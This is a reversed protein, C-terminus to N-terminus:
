GTRVGRVLGASILLVAFVAMGVITWRPGGEKLEEDPSEDGRDTEVERAREDVRDEVLETAEPAPEAENDAEMAERATLEAVRTPSSSDSERQRQARDLVEAFPAALESSLRPKIAEMIPHDPRTHGSGPLGHEVVLEAFKQSLKRLTEEDTEWFGKGAAVLFIATMNAKVLANHGNELFEDLGLDLSDDFYVSKVDDWMWGQITQPNTVQWGWLYELFESGMTRAGAYDHAMLPQIWNPNLYRSRLELTLASYLNDVRPNTPDAHQVVRNNPAEGRLQEVAMSLGGLYDFGDNNDILGYLNSARGLYTNEVRSLVTRFSDHASMGEIDVGYAHGMRTVFTDALEMRDEWAGSREALRNVGAGYGGPANGFLRLTAQRGLRGDTEVDSPTKEQVTRVWGAAVENSSLPENGPDRHEGLPRLAGELAPILEPHKGKITESSGDLALLVARDLWVILNGYLDRFLGSTTFLVDRRIENGELPLRELGQVIGRSNWKPRIGLMDLGFAVMVGNDRVVESAWLVIAESGEPTTDGSRRAEGALEAGLDYAIRTPLLDGSLAHFNRGTPLVKPTRIPDNGPGPEVFGGALGNLLARMEHDPSVALKERAAPDPEEGDSMSISMKEIADETWPRGFVHLGYPMFQEQLHTLYHGVEHVLLEDSVEKYTLAEVERSEHGHESGHDEHREDHDDHEDHGSRHDHGHSHGHRLEHNIEEELNLLEITSRLQRAARLRTTSDPAGEDAQYSEVLQRLELLQDYLPTAEMPPTLHDVIVALGRRKAQIGEGVGDVIYPYVGPINGAVVMSYDEATLGVRRRPLFEYTSHRGLHVLADAEFENKLWLYFALYQHPPPFSLNAHLLEEDIEWGRPPQPGIFVNGFRIGPFLFEGDHVMVEGPPEGWGRFGEIGTRRLAEVLDAAQDWDPEGGLGEEYITILQSLLDLARDRAPHRVGELIHRLSGAQRELLAKALHPENELIANRLHEHLYGLPGEVLEARLTEPLESLWLRYEQAGLTAVKGAMEELAGRDEPLNVGREQILDMLAEPSDPLPGTQYGDAKLRHLIEWLSAPVDLNDAGVNHRGPPHNYYILGIRKESNDRRSLRSWREFRDAVREVQDSVPSTTRYRLGSLESIRAEDAAALVHPQSTGQLEPMAIRYHVSNWPLGDESLGWEMESRDTLRIGKVVPVNLAALHESVAERGEGGGAVFDQLMVIGALRDVWPADRLGEVAKETPEGWRAFVSFSELGKVALEENLRDHLERDGARDGTDLDLIAVIGSTGSFDLAEFQRVEGAQYYRVQDRVDPAPVEVEFGTQDLIWALLGAKNQADRQRWYERARLWDAQGPFVAAREELTEVPDKDPGPSRTFETYTEYDIGDMVREGQLHSLRTLALDSHIALIPVYPRPSQKELLGVLRLAQDGFVAAFLLADANAWLATLEGDTLEAIQEPTRLTFGVEPYKEHLREAGAAVEAASRESVVGFVVPSRGSEASSVSLLTTLAVFGLMWGALIARRMRGM